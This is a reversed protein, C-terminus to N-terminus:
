PKGMPITGLQVGPHESDKPGIHCPRCLIELNHPCWCRQPGNGGVKHSLQAYEIYIGRGCKQCCGGDREYIEERRRSADMGFLYYHGANSIYSRKKKDRFTGLRYFRTTREEDRRNELSM